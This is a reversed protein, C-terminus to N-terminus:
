DGTSGFVSLARISSPGPHGRDEAQGHLLQILLIYSIYVTQLVAEGKVKQWDRKLWPRTPPM